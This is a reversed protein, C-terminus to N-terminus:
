PQADLTRSIWRGPSLAIGRIRQQLNGPAISPTYVLKPSEIGPKEESEGVSLPGWYEKGHSTVPWGYNAGKTIQNIEDGGRPGHEIEWLTTNESDFFLGLWKLRSCTHRHFLM